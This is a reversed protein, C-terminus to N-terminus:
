WVLLFTIKLSVKVSISTNLFRLNWAGFELSGFLNPYVLLNGQLGVIGLTYYPKSLFLKGNQVDICGTRNGTCFRPIDLYEQSKVGQRGPTEVGLIV